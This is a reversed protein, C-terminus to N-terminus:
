SHNALLHAFSAFPFCTDFITKNDENPVVNHINKLHHTKKNINKSKSVIFSFWPYMYSAVSLILVFLDERDNVFSLVTLEVMRQM